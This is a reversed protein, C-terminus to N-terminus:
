KVKRNRIRPSSKVPIGGRAGRLLRQITERDMHRLHYVPVGEKEWGAIRELSEVDYPLGDHFVFVMNPTGDIPVLFTGPHRSSEGAARARHAAGETDQEYVCVEVREKPFGKNSDKLGGIILDMLYSDGWSDSGMFLAKM